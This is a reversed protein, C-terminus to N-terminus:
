LILAKGFYLCVKYRLLLELMDLNHYIIALFMASRGWQDRCNKNFKRKKKKKREGNDIDGHEDQEKYHLSSTSFKTLSVPLPNAGSHWAKKSSGNSMISKTKKPEFVPIEEMEVIESAIENTKNQDLLPTSSMRKKVTDPGDGGGNEHAEKMRDVQDNALLM